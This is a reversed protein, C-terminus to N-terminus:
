CVVFPANSFIIQGLKRLVREAPLAMFFTQFIHFFRSLFSFFFFFLMFSLLVKCVADMVPYVVYAHAVDPNGSAHRLGVHCFSHGLGLAHPPVEPSPV